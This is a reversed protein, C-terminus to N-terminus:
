AMLRLLLMYCVTGAGISFLANKKWLQLGVVLASAIIEPLGHPYAAPQINRLCYVVLIVMISAPLAAGLYRVMAPLNQRGGFLLYPLARTFATILAVVAVVLATDLANNM